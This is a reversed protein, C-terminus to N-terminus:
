LLKKEQSNWQTKNEYNLKIKEFIEDFCEYSEFTYLHKQNHLLIDKISYYWNHIEEISKNNLKQIEKEIKEERRENM